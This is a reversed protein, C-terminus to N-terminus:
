IPPHGSRNLLTVKGSQLAVRECSAALGDWSLGSEGLVERLRSFAASAAAMWMAQQLGVDPYPEEPSRAILTASVEKLRLRDGAQEFQVDATEWGRPLILELTDLASLAAHAFHGKGFPEM